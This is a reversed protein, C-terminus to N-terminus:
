CASGTPRRVFEARRPMGVPVFTWSVGLDRSVCYDTFYAPRTVLMPNFLAAEARDSVAMHLHPMETGANSALGLLDWRHVTQGATVAGSNRRLHAYDVFEDPGRKVVIWNAPDDHLSYGHLVLTVTGDSASLFPRGETPAPDNQLTGPVHSPPVYIFDWSFAGEIGHSFDTAFEQSVEWVDGAAFPLGLPQANSLVPLRAADATADHNASVEVIRATGTLASPPRLKAGDGPRPRDFNVGAVLGQTSETVPPALRQVIESLTFAHDYVAVDDVFGYFQNRPETPAVPRQGVRLPGAPPAVNSLSVDATPVELPALHHGDLWVELNSGGANDHRRIVFLQRWVPTAPTAVRGPQPPGTVDVPDPVVYHVVTGGIRLGLHPVVPPRSASPDPVQRGEVGVSFSSSTPTTVAALLPGEYSREYQAMFRVALTHEGGFYSATEIGTDYSSGWGLEAAGNEPLASSGTAGPSCATALLLAFVALLTGGARM